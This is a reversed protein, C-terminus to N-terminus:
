WTYRVTYTISKKAGAKVNVQFRISHPDPGPTHESSAATIEHNDGRYFHEIVEITQNQPTQNELIIEFSEEASKLPVLEAYGTRLRQGSLGAAPGLYLTASSGAPLPDLWDTGMWELTRDAAGRLLRFEGPPLPPAAAPNQFVLRTEVHTSYETGLNWDTRRNRQFRDFRVGDYVYAIDVPLAVIPKLSAYIETEAPLTLPQPLDYTAIVTASAALREPVWNRGDPSYRLAPTRGARPDAPDPILPPYRGKETLALRIRANSFDRRTLNRIRVRTSLDMTRGGETLLAEHSASWVIGSAAYSLQVAAPPSIDPPLSWLLTPTKALDARPPFEISDIEFLNPLFHPAPPEAELTLSPNPQTFDPIAALRGSHSTNGRRVTITAGRYARFLDAPKGLHYTFRQSLIDLTEGRELPVASITAPLLTEPLPQIQVLGEPKAPEVDHTETIQAYGNDQITLSISRPKAAPSVLPTWLLLLLALRKM